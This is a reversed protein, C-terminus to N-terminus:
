VTRSLTSFIIKSKQLVCNEKYDIDFLFPNKISDM